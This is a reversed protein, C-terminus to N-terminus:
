NHRAKIKMVGVTVIGALAIIMVFVEAPIGREGTQPSVVEDFETAYENGFEDVWVIEWEDEDYEEEDEDSSAGTGPVLVSVRSVDNAGDSLRTVQITLSVYTNRDPAVVNGNLDIVHPKSSRVLEYKYGDASPINIKTDGKRPSLSGSTIKSLMTTPGPMGKIVHWHEEVGAEAPKHGGDRKYTIPNILDGTPLTFGEKFSVEMDYNWWDFTASDEGKYHFLMIWRSGDKLISIYWASNWEVMSKEPGDGVKITFKNMISDKFEPTNVAARWVTDNTFYNLGAFHNSTDQGFSKDTLISLYVMGTGETTENSFTVDIPVDGKEDRIIDEPRLEGIVDYERTTGDDSWWEPKKLSEVDHKSRTFSRTELLGEGDPLCFGKEFNVTIVNKSPHYDGKGWYYIFIQNEGEIEGFLVGILNGNGTEKNYLNNWEIATLTKDGITFTLYETISRRFYETNIRDRWCLIYNDLYTLDSYFSDTKDVYNVDSDFNFYWGGRAEDVEGFMDVHTEKLPVQEEVVGDYSFIGTDASYNYKAPKLPNGDADCAGEIFEITFDQSCLRYGLLSDYVMIDFYQHKGNPEVHLYVNMGGYEELSKGNILMYKKATDVLYQPPDKPDANDPSNVAYWRQTFESSLVMQIETLGYADHNLVAANTINIVPKPPVYITFQKTEATYQYKSSVLVNANGDVTGRAFEITFDASALSAGFAADAVTVVVKQKGSDSKLEVKVADAGKESVIQEISKDNIVINKSAAEAFAAAPSGSVAAADLVASIETASASTTASISTIETMKTFSKSSASFAYGCPKVNKGDADVAGSLIEVTFDTTYLRSGFAADYVWIDYMQNTSSKGLNIRVANNWSKGEMLETFTKGNILIYKAATELQAKTPTGTAHDKSQFDNINKTYASDLKLTIKTYGFIGQNQAKVETVTTMDEVDALTNICYVMSLLMSFALLLAIISRGKKFM